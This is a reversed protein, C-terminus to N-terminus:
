GYTSKSPMGKFVRYASAGSGAITGAASLYSATQQAKGAAISANAALEAGQIGTAGAYRDGRAQDMLGRAANEGSYAAMLSEYEGRQAIDGALDLVGSDSASGGGAAARAQLSSLLLRAQRTKELSQRQSSARSEQANQEEQQAKFELMTQNDAAAKRQAAAQAEGASAAANGSIITGGAQLAGSALSLVAASTATLPDFTARRHISCPELFRDNWM